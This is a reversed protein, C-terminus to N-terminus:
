LTSPLFNMRFNNLQSYYKDKQRVFNMEDLLQNMKVGVNKENQSNSKEEKELLKLKKSEEIFMHIEPNLHYVPIKYNNKTNVNGEMIMKNYNYEYNNETKNIYNLENNSKNKFSSTEIKNRYSRQSSYIKRRFNLKKLLNFEDLEEKCTITDKDQM